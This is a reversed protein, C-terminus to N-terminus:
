ISFLLGSLIAAVVGEADPQGISGAFIVGVGVMGLLLTILNLKVIAEHFLLRAFIFVYIPATYQLVIANAATTLKNAWVFSSVAATYSVVSVLLPLSTTWGDKRVFPLFFLSAFLSRYFVITLPHLELLKIFVGALSWLVGTLFILWRGKVEDRM